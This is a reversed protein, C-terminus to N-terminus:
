KSDLTSFYKKVQEINFFPTDFISAGNLFGAEEHGDLDTDDNSGDDDEEEENADSAHEEGDDDEDGDPESETNDDGPSDTEDEGEEDEETVEGDPSNHIEAEVDDDNDDDDGTEETGDTGQQVSDDEGSTNSNPNEEVNEDNEQKGLASGDSDVDIPLRSFSSFITKFLSFHVVFKKCNKPSQYKLSM